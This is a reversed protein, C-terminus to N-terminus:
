SLAWLRLSGYRIVVRVGTSPTFGPKLKGTERGGWEKRKGKEDGVRTGDSGVAVVVVAGAVSKMVFQPSCHRSSQSGGRTNQTITRNSRKRRIGRGVTQGIKEEKGRRKEKGKEGAGGGRENISIKHLM